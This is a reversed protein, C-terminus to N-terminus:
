PRGPDHNRPFSFEDVRQQGERDETKGHENGEMHVSVRGIRGFDGVMARGAQAAALKAGRIWRNGHNGDDRRDEIMEM